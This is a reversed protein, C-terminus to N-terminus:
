FFFKSGNNLKLFHSKKNNGSINMNFDFVIKKLHENLLEVTM